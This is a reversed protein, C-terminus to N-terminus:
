VGGGTAGYVPAGKVRVTGGRKTALVQARSYTAHDSAEEQSLLVDKGSTQTGPPVDLDPGTRKDVDVFDTNEPLGAWGTIFESPTKYPLKSKPDSTIVFGKEGEAVFHREHESNFRFVDGMMSVVPPDQGEVVPLLFREKVGALSAAQVIDSVLMRRTLRRNRNQSDELETAVPELEKRRWDTQLSVIQDATPEVPKNPDLTIEKGKPVLDNAEMVKTIFDKDGLLDEPKRRGDEAAISTARRTVETNFLDKAMHTEAIAAQSVYGDPLAVEHTTGDIEVSIMVPEM